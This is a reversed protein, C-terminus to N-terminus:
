WKYGESRCGDLVANNSQTAANLNLFFFNCCVIIIMMFGVKGARGARQYLLYGESSLAPNYNEDDVVDLMIRTMM